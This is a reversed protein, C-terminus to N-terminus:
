EKAINQEAATIAAMRDEVDNIREEAETIGSNIGELTNNMETQKNNLDELDETFMEQTKEIKTEKRKGLDQTLKVIITRFEEESVYGVEVDNLQKESIKDQTKIQSIVKQKEMMILKRYYQKQTLQQSATSRRAAETQGKISSALLSTYAEQLSPSAIPFVPDQEPPCPRARYLNLRIIQQHTPNCRLLGARPDAPLIM